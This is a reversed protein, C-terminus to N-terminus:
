YSIECVTPPLKVSNLVQTCNSVPFFNNPKSTLLDFTLTVALNEPLPMGSLLEGDLVM